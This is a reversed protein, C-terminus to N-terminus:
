QNLHNWKKLKIIESKKVWGKNFQPFFESFCPLMNDTYDFTKLKATLNSIISWVYYVSYGQLEDLISSDKYFDAASNVLNGREDHHIISFSQDILSLLGPHLPKPILNELTKIKIQIDSWESLPDTNQMSGTITDLNYYRAKKAFKTFFLIIMSDIDSSLLDSDINYSEVESILKAIDHGINKLVENSPFVGKDKKYKSIIILKLLRELGISIM